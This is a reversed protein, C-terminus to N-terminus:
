MVVHVHVYMYMSNSTLWSHVDGSVQTGTHLQWVMVWCPKVRPTSVPTRNWGPLMSTQKGRVCTPKHHRHQASALSSKWSRGAKHAALKRLLYLYYTYTFHEVNCGLNRIISMHTLNVDGHRWKWTLLDSLKTAARRMCFTRIYNVKIKNSISCNLM